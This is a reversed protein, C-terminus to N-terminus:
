PYNTANKGIVKLTNSLFVISEHIVVVSKSMIFGFIKSIRLNSVVFTRGILGSNKECNRKNEFYIFYM